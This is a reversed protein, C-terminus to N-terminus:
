DMELGLETSITKKYKHANEIFREYARRDGEKMDVIEAGVLFRESSLHMGIEEYRRGVVKMEITRGPIQIEVRIVRDQGVLYKEAIRISAVVVGIGCSSIDRTVGSIAPETATPTQKVGNAEPVFWMTVPVQIKKRVAARREAITQAVRTAIKRILM